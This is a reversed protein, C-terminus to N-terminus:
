INLSGLNEKPLHSEKHKIFFQPFDQSCFNQKKNKLKEAWADNFEAMIKAAHHQYFDM